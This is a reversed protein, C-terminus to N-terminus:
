RAMSIKYKSHFLVVPLFFYGSSDSVQGILLFSKLEQQYLYMIKDSSTVLFSVKSSNLDGAAKTLDHHTELLVNLNEDKFFGKEIAIYLPANLFSRTAEVITIQESSTKELRGEKLINHKGCNTLLLMLIVLLAAFWQRNSTIL